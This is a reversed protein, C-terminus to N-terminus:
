SILPRLLKEYTWYKEGSKYGSGQRIISRITQLACKQMKPELHNEINIGTIKRVLNRNVLYTKRSVGRQFCASDGHIWAFLKQQLSRSLNKSLKVKAVKGGAQMLFDIWPQLSGHMVQANWELPNSLGKRVLEDRRLTLELRVLGQAKRMLKERGYVCESFPRKELEVDKRYVKFTRRRSHQGIYSTGTNYFSVESARGVLLNRLAVMLVEAREPTGCDIHSVIDVRTLRYNGKRIQMMEIQTPQLKMIKLIEIICHRCGKHLDELGIVNQGTLFKPISFELLLETQNARSMVRAIADTKPSMIFHCLNDSSMNRNRRAIENIPPHALQIIVKVTDFLSSKFPKWGSELVQLEAFPLLAPLTFKTEDLNKSLVFAIKKKQSKRIM